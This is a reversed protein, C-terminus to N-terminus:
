RLSSLSTYRKNGRYLVVSGDAFGAAMLHMQEDIAFATVPVPRNGPLARVVHVCVPSGHIDKKELNWIKIVPNIGPDDEKLNHDFLDFFNPLKLFRVKLLKFNLSLM